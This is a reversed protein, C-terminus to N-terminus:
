VIHLTYSMVFSVFIPCLVGCKRGACVNHHALACLHAAFCLTEFHHRVETTSSRTFRHKGEDGNPEAAEGNSPQTVPGLGRARLLIGHAAQLPADRHSLPAASPIATAGAAGTPVTARPPLAQQTTTARPLMAEM